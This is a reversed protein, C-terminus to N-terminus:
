PTDRMGASGFHTHMALAEWLEEPIASRAAAVDADVEERSRVGVVVSSVAPNRLAFAIAAAPLTVGFRECEARIRRAREVLHPPADGYDFKADGEPDALLGSNFVGGIIVGISRDACAPLLESDGSPDLLSYRGALLVVDLDVEDVFRLLPAVHNMGCGVAGIVGSDRLEILTPFADSLAIEVHDDPDHVHVVDLRDMHLRELSSDISRLVADRSFDFDPNMAPVDVFISSPDLLDVPRLLRGVKTSLVFEDRPREHLGQGLRRESLGNGYLPATDFFRIGQEWAADITDIAEADSLASYMNGLPAGGLGVRTVSLGRGIPRTDTVHDIM